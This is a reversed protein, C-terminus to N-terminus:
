PLINAGIVAATRTSDISVSEISSLPHAPGAGTAGGGVDMEGLVAIAAQSEAAM